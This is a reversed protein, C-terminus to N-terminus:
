PSPVAPPRRRAVTSEQRHDSTQDPVLHRRLPLSFPRSLKAPHRHSSPRDEAFKVVLPFLSLCSPLAPAPCRAHPAQHSSSAATPQSPCLVLAAFAAPCCCPLCRRQRLRYFPVAIIFIFSLLQRCSVLLAFRSDLLNFYQVTPRCSSLLQRRAVAALNIIVFHTSSSPNIDVIVFTSLQVAPSLQALQWRRRCPRVFLGAFGSGSLGSPRVFDLRCARVRVARGAQVQGPRYGPGSRPGSRTRARGPGPRDGSQRARNRVQGSGPGSSAGALISLLLRCCCFPPLHCIVFGPCCSPVAVAHLRRSRRRRRAACPLRSLPEVPYFFFLCVLLALWDAFSTQRRRRGTGSPRVQVTQRGALRIGIGVAQGSSGSAGAGVSLCPLPLRCPLLHRVPGPFKVLFLLRRAPM